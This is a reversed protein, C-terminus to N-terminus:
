REVCIMQFIRQGLDKSVGYRVPDGCRILPIAHQELRVPGSSIDYVSQVRISDVHKESAVGFFIM